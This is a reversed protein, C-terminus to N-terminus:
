FGFSLGVNLSMSFQKQDLDTQANYVSSLFRDYVPFAHLRFRNSLQYQYELGGFIVYTNNRFPQGLGRNNHSVVELQETDVWSSQAKDLISWKAGVLAFLDHKKRGWIHQGYFLSVQMYQYKNDTEHTVIDHQFNYHEGYSTYELGAGVFSKNNFEYNLRLGLRNSTSASEHDDKHTVLEDLDKSSLKRNSMGYGVFPMVRFNDLFRSKVRDNAVPEERKEKPNNDIPDISDSVVPLQDTTNAKDSDISIANIKNEAAVQLEPIPESLNEDNQNSAVSQAAVKSDEKTELETTETESTQSLVPTSKIVPVQLKNDSETEANINTSAIEVPTSSDISNATTNEEEEDIGEEVQISENSVGANNNSQNSAAAVNPVFSALSTESNENSEDASEVNNSSTVDVSQEETFVAKGQDSELAQEEALLLTADNSEQVNGSDGATYALYGAAGIFPILLLLYRKKFWSGTKQNAVIESEINSWVSDDVPITFNEADNKLQDINRNKESM